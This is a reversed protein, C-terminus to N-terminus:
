SNDTHVVVSFTEIKTTSCNDSFHIAFLTQFECLRVLSIFVDRWNVNPSKMKARGVGLPIALRITPKYLDARCGELLCTTCLKYFHLPALVWGKSTNLGNM